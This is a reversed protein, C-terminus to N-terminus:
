GNFLTSKKFPIGKNIKSVVFLSPVDTTWKLLRHIILLIEIRSIIGLCICIIFAIRSESHLVLDILFVLLSITWIKALISHTAITKKFKLYSYLYCFVELVLILTIWLIHQKIFDVNLYFVSGVVALWFFQDVNSDWIRLSESSVNLKRAVIGDFVDTLLGTTMAAVIWAASHLPQFIALLIVIVGLIIRSFILLFPIKKM